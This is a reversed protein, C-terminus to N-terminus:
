SNCWRGLAAVLEASLTVCTRSTQPKTSLMVIATVPTARILRVKCNLANGACYLRCDANRVQLLTGDEFVIRELPEM